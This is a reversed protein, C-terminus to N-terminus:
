VPYPLILPFPLLTVKFGCQGSASLEKCIKVVAADALLILALPAAVEAVIGFSELAAMVAALSGLLLIDILDNTERASLELTIGPPVWQGSLVSFFGMGQSISGCQLVEPAFLGPALANIAAERNILEINSFGPSIGIDGNRIATNVASFRERIGIVEDSTLTEIGPTIPEIRLQAHEGSKILIIMPELLRLVQLSRRSTNAINLAKDIAGTETPIDKLEVCDKSKRTAM